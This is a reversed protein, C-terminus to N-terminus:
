ALGLIEIYSAAAGDRRIVRFLGQIRISLGSNSASGVDDSADRSSALSVVYFGAWRRCTWPSVFVNQRRQRREESISSPKVTIWEIGM